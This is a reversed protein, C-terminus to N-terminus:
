QVNTSNKTVDLIENDVYTSHSNCAREGSVRSSLGKHTALVQQFNDNSLIAEDNESHTDYDHMLIYAVSSPLM